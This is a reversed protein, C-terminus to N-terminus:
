TEDQQLHFIVKQRLFELDQLRPLSVDFAPTPTSSELNKSKLYVKFYGHTHSQKPTKQYKIMRHSSKRSDTLKEIPHKALGSTTYITFNKNGPTHMFAQAKLNMRIRKTKDFHGKFNYNSYSRIAEYISVM